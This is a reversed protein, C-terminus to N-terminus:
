DFVPHFKCSRRRNQHCKTHQNIIVLRHTVGIKLDIQGEPRSISTMLSQGSRSVQRGELYLHSTPTMKFSISLLEDILKKLMNIFLPKVKSRVFFM